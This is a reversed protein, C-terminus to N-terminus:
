DQRGEEHLQGLEVGEEALHLDWVLFDAGVAAPRAVFPGVSVGLSFKDVAGFLALSVGVLFALVFGSVCSAVPEERHKVSRGVLFVDVVEHGGALEFNRVLRVDVLGLDHGLLDVHRDEVGLLGVEM